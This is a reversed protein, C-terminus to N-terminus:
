ADLWDKFLPVKDKSIFVETRPDPQLELKLKSNSYTHINKIAPLSLLFQRNARFFDDPNLLPSLKDLSYDIPLRQNDKTVLFTIKEESYFYAVDATEITRLRSGVSILFRTKYETKPLGIAQRLTELDTQSFQRKMAHYKQLAASLSDYSVPKLLYDISNVRFAKIMYEDFATTFIVPVPLHVQEFIRFCLDDELHIDMFILDPQPHTQLWQVAEKVSPLMSMVRISADYQQLLSEMREATLEEDEIILVNM